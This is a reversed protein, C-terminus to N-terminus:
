EGKRAILARAKVAWDGLALHTGTANGYYRDRLKVGSEVMDRLAEVDGATQRPEGDKSVVKTGCRDHYEEYTVTHGDVAMRCEPCWWYAATQRPEGNGLALFTLDHLLMADQQERTKGPVYSELINRTATEELYRSEPRPACCAAEWGLNFFGRYLDVEGITWEDSGDIPERENRCEEWAIYRKGREADTMRDDDSSDPTEPPNPKKNADVLHDGLIAARLGYAVYEYDDDDWGQYKVAREAAKDLWVSVYRNVSDINAESAGVGMTHLLAMATKPGSM